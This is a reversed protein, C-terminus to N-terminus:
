GIRSSGTIRESLSEVGRHHHNRGRRMHACGHHQPCSRPRGGPSRPLARIITSRGCACGGHPHERHRGGYNQRCSPPVKLRGNTRAIVYGHSLNIEAGDQWPRSICISPDSGSLVGGPLSVKARGFKALAPRAGSPPRMSEVLDHPGRVISGRRVIEITDDGTREVRIRLTSLVEGMTSIDQLKPVNTYTCPGDALHFLVHRAAVCEEVGLREGRRCPAASHHTDNIREVIM